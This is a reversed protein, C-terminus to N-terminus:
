RLLDRIVQINRSIGNFVLKRILEYSGFFVGVYILDGLITNRYFPLALVFCNILGAITHPYMGSVLWVGFNTILYFLMSSSLAAIIITLTKKNQSLRFGILGAILFSIYVFPITSHFGLFLDSIFM